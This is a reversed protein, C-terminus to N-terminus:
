IVHCASTVDFGIDHTDSGILPRSKGARGFTFLAYLLLFTMVVPFLQLLFEQLLKRNLDITFGKCLLM